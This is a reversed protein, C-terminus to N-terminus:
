DKNRYILKSSNLEKLSKCGMLVMNRNIEDHMNKLLHEVGQQGGAALSFLFMKGFSCAKAGASIAKLVHTGRRVGGDLIIELKDGVADSIAKVQDFPSRSGDLQRGGHNSIMIATCGIDIARKADEVSMVGKLAFPGNWKKVCYEADKWNMSPDYQENIYEIVSKAINTGKDTKTAVNALKFKGHTLYNFVWSPHLVFSMLSQLTLKPPTTFGTRHDRERNGAVLTDVTLCMGDFGSRRCRDILDDTISQDKHVYLQFLKPGGSINSIEEITNNAMTSMSYFIGFKDAARASAKDGDHHYLRQMACPSLFIPMDIKKGFITTSLDPKGVSALINPVLDCDDFSSTNRKLTIEDDAGGDIYHFIPSPLKKKALKRLDEFNYCNQLSM